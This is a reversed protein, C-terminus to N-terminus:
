QLGFTTSDRKTKGKRALSNHSLHSSSGAHSLKKNKFPSSTGYVEVIDNVLANGNHKRAPPLLNEREDIKKNAASLQSQARKENRRRLEDMATKQTSARSGSLQSRNSMPGDRIFSSMKKDEKDKSRLRMHHKKPPKNALM